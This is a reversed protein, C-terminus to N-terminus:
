NAYASRPQYAQERATPKYGPRRTWCLDGCVENGAKSTFKPAGCHCRPAAKASTWALRMRELTREVIAGVQGTRHVRTEKAIGRQKGDIPRYVVCVRVADAGVKRVTEHAFSGAPTQVISTYVLVDLRTGDVRRGYVAENTGVINQRTFGSRTLMGTLCSALLARDTVSDPNYAPLTTTAM